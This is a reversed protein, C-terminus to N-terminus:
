DFQYKNLLQQNVYDMNTEDWPTEMPKEQKKEKKTTDDTDPIDFLYVGLSHINNKYKQPDSVMNNLLDKVKYFTVYGYNPRKIEKREIWKIDGFKNHLFPYDDDTFSSGFIKNLRNVIFKMNVYGSPIIFENNECM